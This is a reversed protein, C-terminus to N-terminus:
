IWKIAKKTVENSAIEEIMVCNVLFFAMNFIWIELFLNQGNNELRHSFSNWYVELYLWIGFLVCAKTKKTLFMKNFPMILPILSIYWLYYQATVVKNFTVFIWTIIILCTNLNKFLFISALFVLIAQPLFTLLSLIKGFHTTYTLYM